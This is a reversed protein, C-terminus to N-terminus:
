FYITNTNMVTITSILAVFIDRLGQFEPETIDATPAAVAPLM